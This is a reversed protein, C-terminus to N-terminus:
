EELTLLGELGRFIQPLDETITQFHEDDLDRLDVDFGDVDALTGLTGTLDVSLCERGLRCGRIRGYDGNLQDDFEIYIGWDNGADDESTRQLNLYHEAGSEDSGALSFVLAYEEDLDGGQKARFAIRM